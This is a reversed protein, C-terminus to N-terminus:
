ATCTPLHVKNQNEQPRAKIVQRHLAMVKKNLSDAERSKLNYDDFDLAKEMCMGRIDSNTVCIASSPNKQSEEGLSRRHRTTFCALASALWNHFISHM